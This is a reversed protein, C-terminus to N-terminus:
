KRPPNLPYHGYKEVAEHFADLHAQPFPMTQDPYCFYGGERGLQWLREQVEAAIREIPGDMVTASSVGGRLATKGKTLTRVRDLDNATVQVPDLIDVGLDILMSVFSDLNGCSHFSIMIDREKYFRFLREYEPRLFENVIRPGLLASDQMGLDDTLRVVEVGVDIYHEAVRLQIDMIRHFVERVFEPETYFYLMMNEMGVLMYAREWLTHHHSGTLFQDSAAFADAMEYIKGCIREDDPDIWRYHKLDERAFIPHTIPYGVVGEHVKHWGVGWPDVWKAGVLTVDLEDDTDEIYAGQYRILFLPPIEVVREPHDFRMIRLANEKADM